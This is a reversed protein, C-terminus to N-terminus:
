GADPRFSTSRSRPVETRTHQLLVADTVFHQIGLLMSALGANHLLGAARASNSDRGVHRTTTGIDYQAAVQIGLKSSAGSPVAVFFINAGRPSLAVIRYQLGTAQVDDAGLAM